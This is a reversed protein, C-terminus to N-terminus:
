QDNFQGLWKNNETSSINIENLSRSATMSVDYSIKDRCTDRFQIETSGATTLRPNKITICEKGDIEVTLINNMLTFTGKTGEKYPSAADPFHMTLNYTGEISAAATGATDGSALTFACVTACNGDMSNDSSSCSFILFSILFLTIIKVSTKM